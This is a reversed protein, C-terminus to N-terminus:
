QCDLSDDPIVETYLRVLPDATGTCDSLECVRYNVQIINYPATNYVDFTRKLKYDKNVIVLTIDTQDAAPPINSGPVLSQITKWAFGDVNTAPNCSGTTTRSAVFKVEELNEQIKNVAESVRQAKVRLAVAIVIGQLAILVFATAIMIGVLVEIFTFGQETKHPITQRSQHNFM